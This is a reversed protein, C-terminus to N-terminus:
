GLGLLTDLASRGVVGGNSSGAGNKSSDVPERHENIARLQLRYMLGDPEYRFYMDDGEQMLLYRCRQPTPACKGGGKTATADAGVVFAAADGTINSEVYQVLPHQRDPLLALPKVDRSVRTKGVPGTRVDLRYSVLEPKGDKGSGDAANASGSPPADPSDSAPSSPSTSPNPSSPAPSSPAPTPSSPTPTPSSPAPSPSTTSGATPNSTSGGASGGSGNTTGGDGGQNDGGGGGGIFQQKFPNRSRYSALRQHFNRLGPVDAVVVPELQQESTAFPSGPGAADTGAAVTTAAPEPTSTRGLIPVAVIAVVLVIAISLMRRDRLDRYVNRALNQPSM